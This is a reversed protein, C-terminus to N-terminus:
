VAAVNFAVTSAGNFGDTCCNTVHTLVPLYSGGEDFNDAILTLTASQGPNLIYSRHVNNPFKVDCTDQSSISFTSAKKHALEIVGREVVSGTNKISITVKSTGGDSLFNKSWEYNVSTSEIGANVISLCLVMLLVYIIKKM